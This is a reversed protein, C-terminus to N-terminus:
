NKTLFRFTSILVFDFDDLSISPAGILPDAPTGSGTITTGDVSIRIVPNIPDTNNTNLGTVSRVKGVEIDGSGLLSKGNITKITDPSLLGTGKSHFRLTKQNTGVYIDGTIIDQYFDGNNALRHNHIRDISDKTHTTTTAM